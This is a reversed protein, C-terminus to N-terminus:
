RGQKWRVEGAGFHRGALEGPGRSNERVIVGPRNARPTMPHLRVRPSPPPHPVRPGGAGDARLGPTV